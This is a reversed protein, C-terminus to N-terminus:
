QPRRVLRKVADSSIVQAYQAYRACDRNENAEIVSDKEKVRNTQRVGLTNRPLFRAFLADGIDQDCARIHCLAILPPKSFALRACPAIRQSTRDDLIRSLDNISVKTRQRWSRPTTPMHAMPSIRPKTASTNPTNASRGRQNGRACDIRRYSSGLM